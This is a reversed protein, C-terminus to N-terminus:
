IYRKILEALKNIYKETEKKDGRYMLYAPHKFPVVMCSITMNKLVLKSMNYEADKGLPIILKPRVLEIEELLFGSCNKIEEESSSRNEPPHCHVVNTIFINEKIIGAKEFAKDLIKGSDFRDRYGTFPIQISTESNYSHLSQGILMVNSYINGYGPASETLKKYNLGVCRSCLRIQRDLIQKRSTKLAKKFDVM